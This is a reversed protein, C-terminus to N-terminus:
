DFIVLEKNKFKYLMAPRHQGLSIKENLSELLGLSLMKKRFNRKDLKKGLITEYVKQLQSLTFKPPLLGVALTSYGIKNKIRDVAYQLIKKHDFGMEPLKKVSYWFTEKNGKQSWDKVASDPILAFYAVSIVRARPDRNIDGFSYLQELYLNKVGAKSKIIRKVADEVSETLQVFGGPFVMTDKFPNEDRKALLIKLEGDMITFILVDVTVYPHDFPKFNNTDM